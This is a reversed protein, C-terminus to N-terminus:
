YDSWTLLRDVAADTVRDDELFVNPVGAGYFRVNEPRFLARAAAVARPVRVYADIDSRSLWRPPYGAEKGIVSCRVPDRDSRRVRAALFARYTVDDPPLSYGMLVIHDADEVVVRMDRQIEELFPPPRSKVTTQTVLPTHHAYTLTGCHVCARADVEGRDWAGEEDVQDGWPKFAIGHSFRALPPPPLLTRSDVMWADGIFSSLKGCNPCERWWLCGHPFLYKTVRVRIDAGHKPDNLQRASSENMPQWVPSGAHPKEVRPGAVFHGLDHYSLLSANRPGIQPARRPDNYERNAVFQSWLGVPDWNLSVFGVDTLVFGPKELDAERETSDALAIGREQVRRSLARAFDRHLHLHHQGVASGRCTHWDIYALVQLLLGLANRAARVREPSLFTRDRARFGHGSQQHMDLLNFLDRLGFRDVAPARAVPAGPCINIAAVLAPWDYLTRLQAIRARRWRADAGPLSRQMARLQGTTVIDVRTNHDANRGNDGLIALLDHLAHKWRAPVNGLARRVRQRLPRDVDPRPALRRLFRSQDDTVRFGLSATAGAGWFVVTRPIRAM